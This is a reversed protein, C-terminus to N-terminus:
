GGKKPSEWSVSRIGATGGNMLQASVEEISAGPTLTARYRISTKDGHSIEIPEFTIQHRAFVSRVHETPFECGDSVLAVKMRRRGQGDRGNLALLCACLFAAGLAAVAFAGLGASMGLGMLLFMITIDRPDDVPTRFRILGAAGAIGFARALSNGIIIMMLAGSVCLLVQAQEMSRSLPKKPSVHRQVATILLGILAATVLKLLEIFPHTTEPPSSSQLSGSAAEPVIPLAPRGFGIWVLAAALGLSGAVLWVPTRWRPEVGARGM